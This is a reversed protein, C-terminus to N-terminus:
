HGSHSIELAFTVEVAASVEHEGPEIPMSSGGGASLAMLEGGGRRVGFATHEPEALKLLAGLRAGVGEAYAQAKRQGQAAAERAAQLRVPNSAAIQWAPGNIQAQLEETARTILQGILEPDTLRASLVSAARHGLSRRGTETHDFEESVTVGSTSRDAKVVALEDLLVVLAHSRRAVDALAAGPAEELVSLTIWLVAEDPEARIVAEGQVTVTAVGSGVAGVDPQM